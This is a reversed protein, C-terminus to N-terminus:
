FMRIKDFDATEMLTVTFVKGWKPISKRIPDLIKRWEPEPSGMCGLSWNNVEGSGYTNNNSMRHGNTGFLKNDQEQVHDLIMDKNGDRWYNILGIQQFYPYQSFGTYIDMWKWAGRYQGPIIIATGTVGAVTVPELISGKLGPKTTAPLSLVKNEGNEQYTLHLWDTFHNTILDNTREFILNMNLDGEFFVYNKAKVAAKIQEYTRM